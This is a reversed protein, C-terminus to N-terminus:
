PRQCCGRPRCGVCRQNANNKIVMGGHMAPRHNDEHKSPYNPHCAHAMDASVLLSKKFALSALETSSSVRTIIQLCLCLCACPPPPSLPPPLRLMAIPTLVGAPVARGGGGAVM